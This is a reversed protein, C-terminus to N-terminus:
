FGRDICMMRVISLLTNSIVARFYTTINILYLKNQEVAINVQSCSTTLEFRVAGVVLILCKRNQSYTSKENHTCGPHMTHQTTAEIRKNLSLNRDVNWAHVEGRMQEICPIRGPLCQRKLVSLEIEAINLWSGHKPTYHIELREVLRRAEEPPFATYLSAADHTNLNDMVLVVKTADPYREELM